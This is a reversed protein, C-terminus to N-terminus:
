STLEPNQASALNSQHGRMIWGKIKKAMGSACPLERALSQVRAMTPVPAVAIFFGSICGVLGGPSEEHGM